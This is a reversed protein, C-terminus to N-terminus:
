HHQADVSSMWQPAREKCLNAFREELCGAADPGCLISPPLSDDVGASVNSAAAGVLVTRSLKPDFRKCLELPPGPELCVLLNANSGVHKVRMEEIKLPVDVLHSNSCKEPLDIVDLNTCGAASLRLRLSDLKLRQGLAQQTANQVGRLWFEAEPAQPSGLEASSCRLELAIPQRMGPQVLVAAAAQAVATEGLLAAVLERGQAFGTWPTAATAASRKQPEQALRCSRQPELRASIGGLLVCNPFRDLLERVGEVDCITELQTRVESLAWAIGGTNTRRPRKVKPEPVMTSIARAPSAFFNSPTSPAPSEAVRKELRRPNAEKVEKKVKKQPQASSEGPQPTVAERARGRAVEADKASEQQALSECQVSRGETQFSPAQALAGTEQQANGRLVQVSRGETQFSPAQALAGTEQQANGRLVAVFKSEKEEDSWAARTRPSREVKPSVMRDSRSLDVESASRTLGDPPLKRLGFPETHTVVFSRPKRRDLARRLNCELDVIMGKLAHIHKDEAIERELVAIREDKSENELERLRVLIEMEQSRQLRLRETLAAFQRASAAVLERRMLDGELQEKLVEMRLQDMFNMLPVMQRSSWTLQQNVAALSAQTQDLHKELRLAGRLPQWLEWIWLLYELREYPRQRYLLRKALARRDSKLRSAETAVLKVADNCRLNENLLFRVENRLAFEVSNKPEEQERRIREEKEQQLIYMFGQFSYFLNEKKNQLFLRDRLGQRAKYIMMKSARVHRAFLDDYDEQLEAERELVANLTRTQKDLRQIAEEACRPFLADESEYNTEILRHRLDNVETTLTEIKENAIDLKAQLAAMVKEPSGDGSELLLDEDIDGATGMIVVCCGMFGHGGHRIWPEKMLEPHISMYYYALDAAHGARNLEQVVTILHSKLRDINKRAKPKLALMEADEEEEGEELVDIPEDGLYEHWNWPDSHREKLVNLAQRLREFAAQPSEMTHVM